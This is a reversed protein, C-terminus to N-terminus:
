GFPGNLQVVQWNLAGAISVWVLYPVLLVGSLRSIRWCYIALTLVSIWLAILEIFALDPRQLRFFLLSWLINLFGNLAFLGVVMDSVKSNPAKGWAVVASIAAFAFITTWVIPFALRPPTWDPKALGDYWPGLTTITGGLIAVVLAAIGAVTIPLIWSRSM